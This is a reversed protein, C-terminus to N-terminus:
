SQSSKPTNVRKGGQQEEVAQIAEKVSKEAEDYAMFVVGVFFLFIKKFKNVPFVEKHFESERKLPDSNLRQPIHISCFLWIKRRLADYIFLLM